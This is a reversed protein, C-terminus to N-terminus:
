GREPVPLAGAPVVFLKGVAESPFHTRVLLLMEGDKTVDEATVIESGRQVQSVRSTPVSHPHPPHFITYLTALPGRAASPPTTVERMANDYAELSGTLALGEFRDFTPRVAALYVGLKRLDGRISQVEEGDRLLNRAGSLQRGVQLSAHTTSPTCSLPWLSLSLPTAYGERALEM